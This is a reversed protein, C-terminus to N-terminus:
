LIINHKHSHNKRRGRTKKELYVRLLILFNRQFEFRTSIGIAYALTWIDMYKPNLDGTSM